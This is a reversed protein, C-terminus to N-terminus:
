SAPRDEIEERRESRSAAHSSPQMEDGARRRPWSARPWASAAGSTIVAAAGLQDPIRGAGAQVARRHGLRRRDAAHLGQPQRTAVRNLAYFCYGYLVGMSLITGIVWLLGGFRAGFAFLGSFLALVRVGASGAAPLRSRRRAGGDDFARAAPRAGAEGRVEAGARVLADCVPCIIADQIKHECAPATASRAARASSTRRTPTITSAAAGAARRGRGARPRRRSPCRAATPPASSPSRSSPLRDPQRRVPEARPPAVVAREAAAADAAAEM